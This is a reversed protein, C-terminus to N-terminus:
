VINGNKIVTKVTFDPAVRVLDANKGPAIAGITDAMGIHAAPTTALMKAAIVPDVDYDVCLVRLARDMTCISGAFSTMDPLKAVGDDVIVETGNTLSGLM